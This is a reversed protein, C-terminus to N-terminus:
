MSNSIKMKVRANEEMWEFSDTNGVSFDGTFGGFVSTCVRVILVSWESVGCSNDSAVLSWVTVGFVFVLACVVGVGGDM